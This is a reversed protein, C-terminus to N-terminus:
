NATAVKEAIKQLPQQLSLVSQSLDKAHKERNKEDWTIFGGPASADRYKNLEEDVKGFEDAVEQSLDPDIQELGPQLNAFAQKAGEVNGSFDALDIHSFAEEEGTIKNSQVEELLSAAGNALDEPRYELGKVVEVLKGVNTSLDAAYTKTDDTIEESKWLDREVAHFGSWGVEEDLSSERMDILYDLNGANDTPDFGPMVFGGVDSEIKEYFPRAQIYAAKAAEVDGSDVADKLGDVGTQLDEAQSIVWAAYDASGQTLLESTSGSPEAAADGTVTFTQTEPDAGPCYVTYDGGDLTVTFSSAPLGPALNEKEGLIKLDNQLEVESIATSSVNTVTFTVPGAPAKSFNLSCTDVGDAALTVQVQAAGDTVPAEGGTTSAAESGGASTTTTDATCAGLSLVLAIAAGALSAPRRSPFSTFM